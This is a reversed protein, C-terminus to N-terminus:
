YKGDPLNHETPFTDPVMCRRTYEVSGAVAAQNCCGINTPCIQPSTTTATLWEQKSLERCGKAPCSVFGGSSNMCISSQTIPGLCNNNSMPVSNTGEPFFGHENFYSLHAAWASKGIVSVKLQNAVNPSTFSIGKVAAMIPDNPEINMDDNVAKELALWDFYPLGKYLVPTIPPPPDSSPPTVVKCDESCNEGGDCEECADVQGNGCACTIDCFARISDCPKGCCMHDAPNDNAHENFCDNFCTDPVCDICESQAMAAKDFALLGLAVFFGISVIKIKRLFSDRM